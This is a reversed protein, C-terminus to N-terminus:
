VELEVPTGESGTVFRDNAQLWQLFARQMSPQGEEAYELSGAEPAIMISSEFHM